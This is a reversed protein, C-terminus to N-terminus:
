TWLNRWWEHVASCRCNRSTPNRWGSKGTWNGGGSPTGPLSMTCGGAFNDAAIGSGPDACLTEYRFTPADLSSDVWAEDAPRAGLRSAARCMWELSLKAQCCDNLCHGGYALHYAEHLITRAVSLVAGLALAGLESAAVRYHEKLAETMSGSRETWELVAWAAYMFDDALAAQGELYNYCLHVKGARANPLAHARVGASSVSIPSGCSGTTITVPTSVCGWRSTHEVEILPGNRGLYYEAWERAGPCCSNENPISDRTAWILDLALKLVADAPIDWYRGHAVVESWKFTELDETYAPADLWTKERSTAANRRTLAGSDGLPLWDTLDAWRWSWVAQYVDGTDVACPDSFSSLQPLDLGWDACSLLGGGGAWVLQGCSEAAGFQPIEAAWGSAEAAGVRACSAPADARRRSAGGVEAWVKASSASLQGKVREYLDSRGTAALRREGLRSGAVRKARLERAAPRIGTGVGLVRRTEQTPVRLPAPTPPANPPEPGTGSARAGRLRGVSPTSGRKKASSASKQCAHGAACGGSTKGVGGCTCAAAAEVTHDVEKSSKGPTVAARSVQGEGLGEWVDRRPSNAGDAANSPGSLAAWAGAASGDRLGRWDM